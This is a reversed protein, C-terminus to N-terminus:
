IFIEILTNQIYNLINLMDLMDVLMISHYMPSLELKSWRSTSSDLEKMLESNALDLWPMEKFIIGAFLLAKLNTFYHNGM